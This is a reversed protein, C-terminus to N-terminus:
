NMSQSQSVRTMAVTPSRNRLAKRRSAVICFDYLVDVAECERRDGLARLSRVQRRLVVVGM